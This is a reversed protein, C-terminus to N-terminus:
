ERLIDERVPHAGDHRATRTHKVGAPREVSRALIPAARRALREVEGTLMAAANVQGRRQKQKKQVEANPRALRGTM